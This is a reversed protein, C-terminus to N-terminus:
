LWVVRRAAPKTTGSEHAKTYPSSLLADGFAAVVSDKARGSEKRVLGLFRALSDTTYPRHVVTTCPM